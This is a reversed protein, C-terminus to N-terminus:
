LFKLKIKNDALFDFIQTFLLEINNTKFKHKIFGMSVTDGIFETEINCFNLIHSEKSGRGKYERTFM